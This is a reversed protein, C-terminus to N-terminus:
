RSRPSAPKGLWNVTDSEPATATTGAVLRQYLRETTTRLVIDDLVYATAANWASCTEAADTSVLMAATLTTPKVVKM